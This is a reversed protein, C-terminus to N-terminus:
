LGKFALELTSVSNLAICRHSASAPDAPGAGGSSLVADKYPGPACLMCHAQVCLWQHRMRRRARVRCWSASAVQSPRRGGPACHNAQTHSQWPWPACHNAQTHSGLGHRVTIPRQTHSGLGHRVTIPRQTHSGLGHRVTIPKQTVALAMACLSQGRHTVALAMACLSQGRHSQWPWPACHNAETHSQWPWPTCHNAQTVALAMAGPGWGAHRGRGVGGVWM